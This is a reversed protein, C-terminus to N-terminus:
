RQPAKDLHEAWRLLAKSAAIGITSTPMTTDPFISDATIMGAASEIMGGIAPIAFPDTTITDTPKGGHAFELALTIGYVALGSILYLRPVVENKASWEKASIALTKNAVRALTEAFRQQLSEVSPM